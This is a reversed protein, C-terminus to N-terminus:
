CGEAIKMEILGERFEELRMEPDTHEWEYEADAEDKETLPAIDYGFLAAFAPVMSKWLSWKLLVWIRRARALEAQRGEDRYTTLCRHVAILYMLYFYRRMPRHPGKFILKRNQLDGLSIDTGSIKSELLAKNRELVRVRLEVQGTKNAVPIIAISGDSLFWEVDYSVLLGNGVSGRNLGDEFILRMTTDGISKPVIHTAKMHDYVFHKHMVPCWIMHYKYPVLKNYRLRSSRPKVANYFNCLNTKFELQYCHRTEYIDCNVLRNIAITLFAYTDRPLLEKTPVRCAKPYDHGRCDICEECTNLLQEIAREADDDVEYIAKTLLDRARAFKALEENDDTTEKELMLKELQSLLEQRKSQHTERDNAWYMPDKRGKKLADLFEESQSARERLRANKKLFAEFEREEDERSREYSYASWKGTKSSAREAM